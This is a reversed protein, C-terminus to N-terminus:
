ERNPFVWPPHSANVSKLWSDEFAQRLTDTRQPGGGGAGGRCEERACGWGLICTEDGEEFCNRLVPLHPGEPGRREGGLVRFRGVQSDM